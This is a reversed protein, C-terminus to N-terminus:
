RSTPGLPLVPFQIHAFEPRLSGFGVLNAGLACVAKCALLLGIIDLVFGTCFVIHQSNWGSSLIVSNPPAATPAIPALPSADAM